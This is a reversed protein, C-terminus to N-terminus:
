RTPAHADEKAEASFWYDDQGIIPRVTHYIFGLERGLNAWASNANEQPSRPAIGGIILYPVPQSADIIRKHQKETMQFTERTM